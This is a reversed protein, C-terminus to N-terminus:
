TKLFAFALDQSYSESSSLNGKRLWPFVKWTDAGISFEDSPTFRSMNLFRIGPVTGIDSWYGDTREVRILVPALPTTGSMSNVSKFYFERNRYGLDAPASLAAWFGGSACPTAFDAVRRFPAFYNTNGDVDCHVGGGGWSNSHGTGNDFLRHHVNDSMDNESTSTSFASADFFTGGTYAGIKELEGFSLMRFIGSAIEIVAHVYEAPSNDAFLFVNPFPGTGVNSAVNSVAQDPQANAALGGDYGVSANVRLLDTSTNYLHINAGSKQLTVTRNTSVLDNRRETWGATVAFTAIKDILDEVNTANTLQYSM